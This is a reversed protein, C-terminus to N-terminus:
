GEDPATRGSDLAEQFRAATAPMLASWAFITGLALSFAMIRMIDGTTFSALFSAAACGAGVALSEGLAFPLLDRRRLRRLGSNVGRVVGLAAVGGLIVIALFLLWGGAVALAGRAAVIAHGEPTALFYLLGLLAGVIALTAVIRPVVAGLRPRADIALVAPALGLRELREAHEAATEDARRLAEDVADRDPLEPPDHKARRVM